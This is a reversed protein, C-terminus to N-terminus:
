DVNSRGDDVQMAAFHTRGKTSRDFEYVLQGCRLQSAPEWTPTPYGIWKVLYEKAQKGSRTRGWRVDQLKEVEYNGADVDPLWSDEPLLAADFDMDESLGEPRDRPREPHLLRPKLRSVHVWPFVRYATGQTKIKCMLEQSKEVIRFPGHWPHALKKSLGPKVKAIYLWVADGVEFGAKYKDALNEWAENREEARARKANEQLRRANAQMYEYQRQNKVRWAYAALKNVGRAPKEMLIAALITKADWGHMLFFPTEKRTTDVATNLAFTLRGALDEWDKQGPEEVYAKVTRMVTQVSREQQGNAQPGYALTAHQRSGMMRTFHTFVESM